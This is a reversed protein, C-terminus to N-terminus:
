YGVYCSSCADFDCPGCFFSATGQYLRGCIDCRWNPRVRLSLTHHHVHKAKNGYFISDACTYCLVLPCYHCVYAPERYLARKCVKCETSNEEYQLGHEHASDPLKRYKNIPPPVIPPPIAISPPAVVPPPPNRIYSPPIPPPVYSTPIPPPVYSTPIPPPVYGTPIPPPIYSPPNKSYSPPYNNYTPPNTPPIIM